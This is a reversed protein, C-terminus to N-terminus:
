GLGYSFSHTMRHIEKKVLDIHSHEWNQPKQPIPYKVSTYIKHIDCDRALKRIGIRNEPLAIMMAKIINQYPNGDFMRIYDQNLAHELVYVTFNIKDNPDVLVGPFEGEHYNIWSNGVLLEYLVAGLSFIDSRPGDSPDRFIPLNSPM